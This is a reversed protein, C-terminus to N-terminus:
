AYTERPTSYIIVLVKGWSRTDLGNRANADVIWEGILREGFDRVIRGLTVDVAAQYVVNCLRRRNVFRIRDALPSSFNQSVVDEIM